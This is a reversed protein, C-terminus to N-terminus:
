SASSDQTENGNGQMPLTSIQRDLEDLRKGIQGRIEEDAVTSMFRRVADAAKTAKNKAESFHDLHGMHHANSASRVFTAGLALEANLFNVLREQARYEFPMQSGSLLPATVPEAVSGRV